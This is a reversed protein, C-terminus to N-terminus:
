EIDLSVTLCMCVGVRMVGVCECVRGSENSGSM